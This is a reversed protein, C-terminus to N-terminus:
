EVYSTHLGYLRRLSTSRQDMVRLSEIIVTNLADSQLTIALGALEPPQPLQPVALPPCKAASARRLRQLHNAESRQGAPANLLPSGPAPRLRCPASAPCAM